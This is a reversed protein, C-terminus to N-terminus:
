AVRAFHTIQEIPPIEEPFEGQNYIINNEGPTM